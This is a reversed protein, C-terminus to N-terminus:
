LFIFVVFQLNVCLKILEIFARCLMAVFRGGVCWRVGCGGGGVGFRM